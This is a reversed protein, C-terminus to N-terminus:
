EGESGQAKRNDMKLQKMQKAIESSINNIVDHESGTMTCGAARIHGGGGFHSAIESVDIFDKSRMSVKFVQSNVEYLFIACEVGKTIILQNVIGSLDNSDVGYFELEKQRLVTAICQNDFFRISELLARGLIQNQLYTKQYFSDDIIKTFKVGKGILKGAAVMTSETTNSHKFVGTDHVLGTYLATATDFSIKELEMEYFLIECTAAADPKVLNEEAFRTNSVHHDINITHKARDFCDQFKGLREKDGCDLALFLDYVEHNDEQKITEIGSLYHFESPMEELYVQVKIEPMNERLYCYMALCSGICDGDPRVHGAIAVTRIGKLEKIWKM